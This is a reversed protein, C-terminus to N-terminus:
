VATEPPPTNRTAFFHASNDVTGGGPLPVAQCGAKTYGCSPFATFTDGPAPASPLPLFLLLEGSANLSFRIDLEEGSHAGSTFILNGQNFYNDPQTLNTKLLLPGSGASIAGSVGFTAKDLTCGTGYMTWNCDPQYVHAPFPQNLRKRPDDATFKVHMADIEEVEGMNGLFQPVSGASVDFIWSRPFPPPMYVREIQVAANDFV